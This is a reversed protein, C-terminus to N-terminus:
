NSHRGPEVSRVQGIRIALLENARWATNIGFTFLCLDRPKDTLIKKINAIATKTRIPEIKISLGKPPHYPNQGKHFTM